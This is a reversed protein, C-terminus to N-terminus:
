HTYTMVVLKRNPDVLLMRSPATTYFSGSTQAANLINRMTDARLGMCNLGMWPGLATWEPPLPTAQWPRYDEKYGRGQDANKLFALGQKRIADATSDSMDFIASGCAKRDFMFVAGYLSVNSGTTAFNFALGIDAPIAKRYHLTDFVHWFLVASVIVGGALLLCGRLGLVELRSWLAPKQFNEVAM